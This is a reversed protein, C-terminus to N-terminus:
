LHSLFWNILEALSVEQSRLEAWYLFRAAVFRFDASAEARERRDPKEKNLNLVEARCCTRRSRM